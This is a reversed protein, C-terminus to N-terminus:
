KCRIEVEEVGKRTRVIINVKTVEYIDAEQSLPGDCWAYRLPGIIKDKEFIPFFSTIHFYVIKRQHPGKMSLPLLKPDKVRIVGKSTTLEVQLDDILPEVGDINTLVIPLPSSATQWGIDEIIEIDLIYGGSQMLGVFLLLVVLLRSDM